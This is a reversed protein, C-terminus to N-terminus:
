PRSVIKLSQIGLCILRQDESIGAQKPSEIVDYVFKINLLGNAKKYVEQDILVTREVNKEEGLICVWTAICKDNVSVNIKKTPNTSSVFLDARIKLYVDSDISEHLKCLLVSEKGISWRGWHEPASWGTICLLNGDENVSFSKSDNLKLVPLYSQTIPRFNNNETLIKLKEWNRSCVIGLNSQRCWERFNPQIELLAIPFNKGFIYLGGPLIDFKLAEQLEIDKDRSPRGLYASNCPKGLKAAVWHMERMLELDAITNGWSGCQYSPYLMLFDHEKILTAWESGLKPQRGIQIRNKLEERLFQTDILQFSVMLVLLTTATTKRFRKFTLVVLGVILVYNIAWFLRGSVRFIGFLNHFIANIPIEYILRDGIYAVNSLALLLLIFLALSLALHSKISEWILKRSTFLHIILLFLVGAGLYNYGEYQGGTADLSLVGGELYNYGECKFSTKDLGLNWSGSSNPNSWTIFQALYRQLHDKPPLFPSILNMSYHGFGWASNSMNGPGGLVGTIFGTLLLIGTVSVISLCAAKIAINRNLISQAIAAIFFPFVMLVFYAQVFITLISVICFQLCVWWFDKSNLIKLYLYFSWAILFHGMLAAHKFRSLLAPASLAFVSACLLAIFKKEGSEITALSIFYSLLPFCLFTWFGFYNGWWGTFKYIIKTLLALIPLSDTYIISVGEPFALDHVYFIPFHWGERIYYELGITHASLDGVPSTWFPTQSLIASADFMSLAYIIGAIVVFFVYLRKTSVCSKVNNIATNISLTM